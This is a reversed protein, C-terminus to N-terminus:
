RPEEGQPRQVEGGPEPRAPVALMGAELRAIERRWVEGDFSEPREAAEQVAALLMGMAAGAAIAPDMTRFPPRGNVQALQRRFLNRMESLFRRLAEGAVGSAASGVLLAERLLIPHRSITETLPGHTDYITRELEAVTRVRTPDFGYAARRIPEILELALALFAQDLNPFYRYFTGQAVGARTVVEPVSAGQWGKTAVVTELAELLAARRKAAALRRRGPPAAGNAGPGLRSARPPRTPSSYSM